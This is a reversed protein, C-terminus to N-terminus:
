RRLRKVVHLLKVKFRIHESTVVLKEYKDGQQRTRKFPRDEDLYCDYEECVRRTKNWFKIETSEKKTVERDQKWLAIIYQM